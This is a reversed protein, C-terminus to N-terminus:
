TFLSARGAPESKKGGNGDAALRVMLPYIIVTQGHLQLRRQIAYAAHNHLLRHYWREPTLVIQGLFYKVQSFEQRASLCLKEADAVLEAGVMTLAKAPYGLRRALAVYQDAQQRTREALAAIENEGKFHGADVVGVSVFVLNHFLNPFDRLVSLVLHVGTGGYASVLFVATPRAPDPSAPTESAIADVVSELGQFQRLARSVRGYHRHISLSLLICCGTLTLTVWGGRGFKEFVTITLISACLLFSGAFLLLRSLPPATQKREATRNQKKAQRRDQVEARLMGLMSLTFTLFVNISYMVVLIHVDGHLSVLTVISAAGLLLIGKQITLRDSLVAFYSPVWRDLAMNALVRPGDIFGTQSGVILLAGESLLTLVVFLRAGTGAGAFQEALVANLTKGAVSGVGVLLYGLLLGAAMLSLSWAMYRMTRRATEVRPERMLPLGNSVAELGTYTGAGLSYAYFLLLLIGWVGIGHLDAHFQAVTQHGLGVAKQLNGGIIGVILVVHTLLFLIFIPLLVLISEKVGRLNLIVLVVILVVELPVKWGILEPMTSFFADGAAAISVTITLMYDILLACGSVVGAKEGLMKSAVVYGGGGHPFREIIRCYAQSIIFITATVAAALGIALYTHSGLARFAEEPGYCSSSLGDAGLGV